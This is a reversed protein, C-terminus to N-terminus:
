LGDMVNMRRSSASPRASSDDSASACGIKGGPERMPMTGGGPMVGLSRNWPKSSRARPAISTTVSSESCLKTWTSCSKESSRIRAPPMSGIARSVISVGPPGACSIPARCISFPTAIRLHASSVRVSSM